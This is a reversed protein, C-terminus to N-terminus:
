PLDRFHDHVVTDNDTWGKAEAVAHWFRRYVLRVRVRRATPPFHFAHREPRGPVLRTDAAEPEALWFPAPSRGDFDRLLKAFLVGPRGALDGAASPLLPGRLAAVARGDRDTAEVLLLLHRDVFGTPVRHGAGDAHITVAVEGSSSAEVALRVADRLMADRSGAFFRHNGLTHPDRALGGRGPAFNTLDGTPVTHCSQCSKGARGAPSDRWESWTGYVHVGFVTGEHCPACYRAERYLPAFADEGRDVDDLPGFFLQGHEPRLLTLGFRGHALGFPGRVDTVKHCYDCHVGAAAVGTVKRLDYYAPDDEPVTPAHCSTCVGSGDPYQSLLSWDSPRAPKTGRRDRGAYLDLFHRGTASRAHGSASWERYIASHCNACALRSAPDAHPDVWLYDVHDERPVRELHIALPQDAADAGAIRYGERAATVRRPADFPPRLLFRGDRDTLTSLSSGRLRVRAGAVPGQDDTVRGIVAAPPFGSLLLLVALAGLLLGLPALRSPSM